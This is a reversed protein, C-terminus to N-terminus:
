EDRAVKLVVRGEIEGRELQEYVKPLEAFERVQVKPKVAGRRVFEMAEIGEQMSGILNGVIKLNKITITAAPTKIQAFDPAIGCCSM